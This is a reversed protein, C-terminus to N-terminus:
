NYEVTSSEASRTARTLRRRKAAPGVDPSFPTNAARTPAVARPLRPTQIIGINATTTSALRALNRGADVVPGRLFMILRFVEMIRSQIDPGGLNFSPGKDEVFHVMKADDDDDEEGPKAIHATIVKTTLQADSALGVFVRLQALDEERRCFQGVMSTLEFVAESVAKLHDKHIHFGNVEFEVLFVPMVVGRVDITCAAYDSRSSGGAANGPFLHQLEWVPVYKGPLTLSNSFIQAWLEGKVHNEAPQTGAGGAPMPYYLAVTKVADLATIVDIERDGRQRSVGLFDKVKAYWDITDLDGRKCVQELAWAAASLSQHQKLASKLYSLPVVAQPLTQISPSYVGLATLPASEYVVWDLKQIRHRAAQAAYLSSQQARVKETALYTAHFWPRPEDDMGVIEAATGITAASVAPVSIFEPIQTSPAVQRRKRTPTSPAESDSSDGVVEVEPNERRMEHNAEFTLVRRARLRDGKIAQQTSTRKLEEIEFHAKWQINVEFDYEELAKLRMDVDQSPSGKVSSRISQATLTVTRRFITEAQTRDTLRFRKSFKVPDVIQHGMVRSFIYAKQACIGMSLKAM